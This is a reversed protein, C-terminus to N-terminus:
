SKNRGTADEYTLVSFMYKRLFRTEITRITVDTSQMSRFSNYSFMTSNKFSHEKYKLDVKKLKVEVMKLAYKIM